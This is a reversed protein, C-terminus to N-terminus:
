ASLPDLNWSRTPLMGLNAKFGKSLHHSIVCATFHKARHRVCVSSRNIPTIIIIIMPCFVLCGTAEGVHSSPLPLTRVTHYSAETPVPRPKRKEPTQQTSPEAPSAAFLVCGPSHSMTPLVPPGMINSDCQPFCVDGQPLSSLYCSLCWTWIWPGSEM